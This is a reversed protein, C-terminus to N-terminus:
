EQRGSFCNKKKPKTKKNKKTKTKKKTKQKKQKTKTKQKKQKLKKNQKTKTKTKQKKQKKTKTKTRKTKTKTKKNKTKQKKNKTKKKQYIGTLKSSRKTGVVDEMIIDTGTNNRAIRKWTVETVTHLNSTDPLVTLPKRTHQHLPQACAQTRGLEFIENITLSEFNNEKGTCSINETSLKPASDFKNIDQDLEQIQEKFLETSVSRRERDSHHSTFDTQIGQDMPIPSSDM